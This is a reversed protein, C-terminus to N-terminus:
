LAARQLRPEVGDRIALYPMLDSTLFDSPWRARIQAKLYEEAVRVDRAKLGAVVKGLGPAVQAILDDVYATTILEGTDAMRTNYHVWQWLQVRTIEATAADEMLHNLPICGNGGMWAATYALCTEVNEKVGEATVKGPVKTNL